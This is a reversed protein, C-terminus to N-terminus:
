HKLTKIAAASISINDVFNWEFLALRLTTSRLATSGILCNLWGILWPRYEMSDNVAQKTNM